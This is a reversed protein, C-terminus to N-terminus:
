GPQTRRALVALKSEIVDATWIRDFMAQAARQVKRVTETDAAEYECVRRRRDTSLLSRRWQAQYVELGSLAIPLPLDLLTGILCPRFPVGSLAFASPAPAIGQWECLCSENPARRRPM